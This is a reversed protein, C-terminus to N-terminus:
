DANKEGLLWKAVPVILVGEEEYQLEGRYLLIQRSEPYDARFSKLASLDSCSIKRLNM